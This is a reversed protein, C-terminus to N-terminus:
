ENGASSQIAAALALLRPGLERQVRATTIRSAAGICSIVCPARGQMLVPTSVIGLDRDWDSVSSCYGRERVQAAAQVLRRRLRVGDQPARRAANHMLYGRESEPLASLLAWGMPSSSLGARAAPVPLDPSSRAPTCSEIAVIELRERTALSIHVSQLDAYDQMQARTSRPLGGHSVAGYGLALVSAALRYKRAGADHLLYGAIVLSQAIRWTTSAPVGCRASLEGCSLWHDQPTFADLLALARAFPAVVSM